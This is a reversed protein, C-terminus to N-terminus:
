SAAGDAERAARVGAGVYRDVAYGSQPRIGTFHEAGWRERAAGAYVAAWVEDHGHNDDFAVASHALEHALVALVTTVSGGLTMTVRSPWAHGTTYGQKRRRLVLTPVRRGGHYERMARTEWLRKAEAALDVGLYEYAAKRAAREKAAATTRRAKATEAKRERERDLAPCSREVLRGTRKSCDLCYRRIDDRRPASPALVGSGCSPCVWRRGTTRKKASM